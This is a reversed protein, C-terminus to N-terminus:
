KLLVLKRAARFGSATQIEYFYVGSGLRRGSNDTANWRVTHSGVTEPQDVLTRVLRGAADFIRITVRGPSAVSYRITTEPNFPNPANQYLRNPVAPAPATPDEEVATADYCPQVGFYDAMTKQLLQIREGGEQINNFSFPMFIVRASDSGTATYKTAYRTGAPYGNPYRLYVGSKGYIPATPSTTILDFDDILPCGADAHMFRGGSPSGAVGTVLPVLSDQPFNEWLDRLWAVGCTYGLFGNYNDGAQLASAVDDGSILFNRDKGAQQIWSQIVAQDEPRIPEVSLNGSHWIITDYQLLSNVSTAPWTYFDGVTSGGPTNGVLSSSGNVNWTDFKYGLATLADAFQPRAERRAFNNVFLISALSDFCALSPNTATKLPLVSMTFYEQDDIAGAPLTSTVDQSDTVAFYYELRTNSPYDGPPVDAYWFTPLALTSQALPVAQFSGGNTRYHMFGSKYGRAAGVQVVASDGLATNINDDNYFATTAFTDQFLDLDRQVLIPPTVSTIGIAVNDFFTYIGYSSQSGECYIQGYDKVGLQVQVSDKGSAGPLLVKQRAWDKTAGYYLLRTPDIWDSWDPDGVNKYRYNLHYYYCGNLPLNRYVDFNVVVRDSQQVDVPPTNLLNDLRPVLSQIVTDWDVWVNTRNETCVDETVVNNALAFYDGVPPLLTTQWTGPGNEATDLFRIQSGARVTINDLYWGDGDYLGDASSYGIDSVFGFRFPVSLPNGPDQYYQVRISDPLTVSVTDCSANKPIKGTFSALETWGYFLDLVELTGYDFNKEVNMKHRFSFVANTGAPITDLRVSNELYHTWSNGYGAFNSDNVWSSDVKGCWWVKGQSCTLLSDIHWATEEGSADYHSWGAEDDLPRGDLSDEFVVVEELPPPGLHPRRARSGGTPSPTTIVPFEERVTGHVRVPEDVVPPPSAAFCPAAAAAVCFFLARLLASRCTSTAM